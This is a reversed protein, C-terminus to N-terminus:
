PNIWPLLAVCGASTQIETPESYIEWNQYPAVLEHLSNVNNNNRYYTDHNGCIAICKIGMDRLPEFFRTRVQHLTKFNIYKRRDFCDGLHIVNTIGRKDLEPFFIESYFKKFFADFPQSDSRAGFHTDTVLAIKMLISGHQIAKKGLVQSM